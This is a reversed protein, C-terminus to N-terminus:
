QNILACVREAGGSGYSSFFKKGFMPKEYIKPFVFLHQNIKIFPGANYILMSPAIVLKLPMCTSETICYSSSIDRKRSPKLLRLAVSKLHIGLEAVNASTSRMDLGRLSSISDAPPPGDLIQTEHRDSDTICISYIYLFFLHAKEEKLRKFVLLINLM